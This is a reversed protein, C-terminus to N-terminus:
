LLNLLLALVAVLLCLPSFYRADMRAFPTSKIKKFFGVYKFDGIARLAFLLAIFWLGFDLMWSPLPAAIWHAKILVFVTFVALVVAVAFSDIRSPSFLLKGSTDSPIMWGPPVLGIIGWYIHLLSLFGFIAALLIGALYIM